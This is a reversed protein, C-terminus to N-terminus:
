RRRALLRRVDRARASAADLIFRDSCIHQMITLGGPSRRLAILVPGRMMSPLTGALGPEFGIRLTRAARGALVQDVAVTFTPSDRGVGRYGSVRGILVVDANRAAGLNLPEHVACARAPTVATMAGLALAAAILTRSM